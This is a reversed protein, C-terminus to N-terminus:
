PPNLPVVRLSGVVFGPAGGKRLSVAIPHPITQPLLRGCKRLRGLVGLTGM